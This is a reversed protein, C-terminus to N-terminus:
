KTKKRPKRDKWSAVKTLFIGCVNRRTLELSRSQVFSGVPSKLDVYKEGVELLTEVAELDKKELRAMAEMFTPADTLSLNTLSLRHKFAVVSDEGSSADELRHASIVAADVCFDPDIPGLAVSLDALVSSSHLPLKSFYRPRVARWVISSDATGLVHLSGVIQVISKIDLRDVSSNIKNVAKRIVSSNQIRLRAIAVLIDRDMEVGAADDKVCLSYRNLCLDVMQLTCCLDLGVLSLSTFIDRITNMTAKNIVSPLRVCIAGFLDSETAGVLAHSRLLGSIQTISLNPVALVLVKGMEKFFHHDAIGEKAFLGLCAIVAQASLSRSYALFAARLSILNVDDLGNAELSYILGEIEAVPTSFQGRALGRIIDFEDVRIQNVNSQTRAQPISHPPLFSNVSSDPSSSIMRRTILPKEGLRHAFRALYLSGRMSM